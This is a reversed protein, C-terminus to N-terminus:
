ALTPEGSVKITISATQRDAVPGTPGFQTVIGPFVWAKSSPPPFVVRFNRADDSDLDAVLGTTADQTPDDPLHNVDFTVEGGDKMGSIFERWRNPSEQHTAEVPDKSLEPGDVDQLEAITTFNEPSAGDGRQVLYGKGLRANTTGM